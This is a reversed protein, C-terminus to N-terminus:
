LAQPFIVIKSREDRGEILGIIHNNWTAVANRVAATYKSHNYRGAVGRKHGRHNLLQEVIHPETGLDGLRTSVTRRLDHLTWPGAADGLRRDLLKKFEAWGTFGRDARAGFLLDRDVVEPVSRIVELALSGLPVWHERGNKARESPIIWTAGDLDLESWCMGGVETRRQGSLLLLRVIKNFETGEETAKWIALLEADSL